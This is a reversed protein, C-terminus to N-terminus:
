SHDSIEGFHSDCCLISIDILKETYTYIESFKCISDFVIQLSPYYIIVLENQSAVTHKSYQETKPLHTFNLQMVMDRIINIRYLKIRFCYCVAIMSRTGTSIRQLPQDKVKRIPTVTSNSKTLKLTLM